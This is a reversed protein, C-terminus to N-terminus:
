IADYSNSYAAATFSRFRGTCYKLFSCPSAYLGHTNHVTAIYHRM